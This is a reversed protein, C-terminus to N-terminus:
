GGAVPGGGPQGGMTAPTGMFCGATYPYEYTLSYHYIEVLEGNWPVTSTRGHCEDLDDNTLLNGDEDYEVYLGFGDM